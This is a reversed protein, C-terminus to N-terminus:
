YATKKPHRQCFSLFDCFTCNKDDACQTFTGDPNDEEYPTFIEAIKQSLLVDFVDGYQAKYDTIEEKKNSDASLLKIIGSYNNGYDKACYM